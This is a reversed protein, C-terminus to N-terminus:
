RIIINGNIDTRLINTNIKKLRNLTENEPSERGNCTIISMKPNVINLFEQSCSTNLGHHPVKLIDCNNIEERYKNGIEEEMKKEIDAAFLYKKGKIKGLLVISNNNEIHEDYENSVIGKLSLEKEEIIFNKEIYKVEIHSLYAHRYIIDRMSNPYIPIYLKEVKKNSLVKELGGYHDDHYHTLILYNITKVGENDLYKIVKDATSDVGTDILINFSKGKILICDSQGTDLFHVEYKEKAYVKLSCLIISIAIVYCIKKLYRLKKV